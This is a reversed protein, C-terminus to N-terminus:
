LEKGKLGASATGEILCLICPGEGCPILDPKHHEGVDLLSYHHIAELVRRLRKHDDYICETCICPDPNANREDEPPWAVVTGCRSCPTEVLEVSPARKADKM